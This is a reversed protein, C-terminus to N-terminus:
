ITVGVLSLIIGAIPAIPILPWLIILVLSIIAVFCICIIGAIIIFMRVFAGVIRSVLRDVFMRFKVDLPAVKASGASIQRFPAFLTKFLLDISFFDM